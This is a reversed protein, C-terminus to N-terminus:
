QSSITARRAWPMAPPMDQTAASQRMAAVVGISFRPWDIPTASDVIVRPTSTPGGSAPSRTSCKPVADGKKNAAATATTSPTIRIMSTFSDGRTVSSAAPGRATSLTGPDREITSATTTPAATSEPTSGTSGTCRFALESVTPSSKPSATSAEIVALGITPRKTAATEGRSKTPLPTTAAAVASTTIPTASSIHCVLAPMTRRPADEASSKVGEVVSMLWCPLRETGGM